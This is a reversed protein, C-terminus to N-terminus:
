LLVKVLLSVEQLSGCLRPFDWIDSTFTKVIQYSTRGLKNENIRIIDKILSVRKKRRVEVVRDEGTGVEEGFQTCFDVYEILKQHVLPVFEQM